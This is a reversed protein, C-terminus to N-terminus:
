NMEMSNSSELTNHQYDSLWTSGFAERTQLRWMALKGTNISVNDIMFLLNTLGGHEFKYIEKFGKDKPLIGEERLMDTIGNEWETLDGGCGQLVLGERETMSSVEITSIEKIM